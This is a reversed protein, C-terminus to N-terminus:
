QLDLDFGVRLGLINLPESFEPSDARDYRAELRVAGHGHGLVFRGGVGGGFMTATESYGDYGVNAFGLGGTVYPSTGERFAHAYNITGSLVHLSSGSGSLSVMSVDTFVTHRGTEDRIALRLGPKLGGFLADGGAPATVILTSSGSASYIDLGVSPGISLTAAHSPIALVIGLVLVSAVQRM